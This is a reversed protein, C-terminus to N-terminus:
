TSRLDALVLKLSDYLNAGKGINGQAAAFLSASLLNRVQTVPSLITKSYQSGAKIKLFGGWASLAMQGYVNDSAMISNTLNKYVTEPVVYGYLSGWGSRNLTEEVGEVAGEGLLTSRGGKGGLQVYEGSDLM